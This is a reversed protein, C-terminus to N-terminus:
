IGLDSLMVSLRCVPLGMVNFFDGELREVFVAGRGQAGYAGAKDMPEGTAIYEKIESDSIDRFYVETAEAGTVINDGRMLAVGTYVTHKKGALRRLMDKADNEDTPKGFPQGDLYVETDAAIILTDKDYHKSVNKAKTLATNCVSREPSDAKCLVEEATDPRVEFDDIGIM